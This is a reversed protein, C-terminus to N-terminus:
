VTSSSYSGSLTEDFITETGIVPIGVTIRVHLSAHNSTKNFDSIIVEVKPSDNVNKIQNGTVEFPGGKDSGAQIGGYEAEYSLGVNSNGMNVFTMTTTVEGKLPWVGFSKKYTRKDIVTYSM